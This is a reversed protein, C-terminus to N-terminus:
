GAPPGNGCGVRRGTGAEAMTGGVPTARLTVHLQGPPTGTLTYTATVTQSGASTFTLTGDSPSFPAESSWHYNVTGAADSHITAQATLEVPCATTVPPQTVTLGSITVTPIVPPIAEFTVGITRTADLAPITCTADGATCHGDGSWSAVRDGAAPSATLSVSAGVPVQMTCPGTCHTPEAQSSSASLSGGSGGTPASVTLTLKPPETRTFTIALTKGDADMRVVCSGAGAACATAGSGSWEGVQYGDAPHATVTLSSDPAAQVVCDQPCTRQAGDVTASVTGNSSPTVTLSYTSPQSETPAPVPVSGSGGASATVTVWRSATFARGGTSTATAFVRYRGPAAWAHTLAAQGSATAGDGFSWAARAVAGGGVLRAALGVQQGAVPTATSLVISLGSVVAGSSRQAPPAPPAPPPVPKASTGGAVARDRYKIIPSSSGDMRIVGARQSTPDNYFVVDDRAVLELADSGGGPLRITAIVSGGAVEVVYVTGTALEPVFVRGSSVVPVGFRAPGGTLLVPRAQGTLTRVLVLSGRDNVAVALLGDTRFGAVEQRAIGAELGIRSSETGRRPDLTIAVSQAADLVTPRGDVLVLSSGPSAVPVPGHGGVGDLWSVAGTGPDLLWLRGSDDVLSTRRDVGSPVTAAASRAALTKPDLSVAVGAASDVAWVADGGTLVSLGSSAGPLPAVRPGASLTAASVRRMTGSVRDVVLADAGVPVVQLRSGANAVPVQGMVQAASGDLRALQGVASSALWAQRTFGSVAAPAYGAGLLGLVLVVSLGGVVAAGPMVRRLGARIRRGNGREFGTM